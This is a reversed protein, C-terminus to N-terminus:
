YSGGSSEFQVCLSSDNRSDNYRGAGDRYGTKWARHRFTVKAFVSECIMNLSQNPRMIQLDNDPEVGFISLAEMAMTKHQGTLCYIVKVNNRKRAEIVVPVTKIIEPRTGAVLLITQVNSSM